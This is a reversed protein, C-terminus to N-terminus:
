GINTIEDQIYTTTKTTNGEYKINTIIRIITYSLLALVLGILAYMAQDKAKQISEDNGYATAFRIGAILLFLVSLIGVFGVLGVAYYPLITDVLINEIGGKDKDAQRAEDPGPLLDPKPIISREYTSEATILAKESSDANATIGITSISIILILLIYIITKKM